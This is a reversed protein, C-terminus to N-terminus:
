VLRFSVGGLMCEEGVRSRDVAHLSVSSLGDPKGTTEPVFSIEGEDLMITREADVSRALTESWRVALQDPNSGAVEIGALADVM